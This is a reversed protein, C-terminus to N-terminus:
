TLYAKFVSEMFFLHHLFILKTANSVPKLTTFFHSGKKLTGSSTMVRRFCAGRIAPIAAPSPATRTGAWDASRTGSGWWGRSGRCSSAAGRSRHTPRWLTAQEFELGAWTLRFPNNPQMHMFIKVNKNVVTLVTLYWDHKEINKVNTNM